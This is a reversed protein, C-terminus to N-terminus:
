EQTGSPENANREEEGLASALRRLARHKRVRVAAASIGLEMGIHETDLGDYYIMRLLHRDTDDLARLADRVVRAREASILGALADPAEDRETAERIFRAFASKERATSRVWHMCLNRATQFVFAPLAARNEIRNARLAETVCRLTEQAVDEAAAPDSLRRSAYLRLRPTFRLALEAESVVDLQGLPEASTRTGVM